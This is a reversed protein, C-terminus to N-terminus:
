SAAWKEVSLGNVDSFHTLNATVVTLGLSLAHAAILRDYSARVFPIESYAQGAAEGFPLIPIDELFANLISLPPPKGRAAMTAPVLALALM